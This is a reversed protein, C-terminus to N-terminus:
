LASSQALLGVIHRAAGVACSFGSGGLLSPPLCRLRLLSVAAGARCGAGRPGRGETLTKSRVVLRRNSCRAHSPRAGRLAPFLAAANALIEAGRRPEREWVGVEATGGIESAQTADPSPIIYFSGKEDLSAIAFRFPTRLHIVEGRTPYLASDNALTCSSRTLYVPSGLGSCNIVFDDNGALLQDLSTLSAPRFTVGSARLNARLWELYGSTEIIVTDYAYCARFTHQPSLFQQLEPEGLADTSFNSHLESFPLM